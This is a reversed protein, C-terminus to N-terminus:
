KNAQHLKQTTEFLRGSLVRAIAFSVDPDSHMIQLFTEKKIRLVTTDTVARVTASIPNTTLLSMEGVIEHRGVGRILTEEAGVVIEGEGELVVYAFAGEDGEKLLVEGPQFTMRESSFALLKLRSSDMGEFLPINELIAAEADLASPEGGAAAEEAVPAEHSVQGAIRGDKMEIVQGFIGADPNEGTIWILTTEPLLDFINERIRDQSVRDLSSLADNVVLIDPRKIISRALTIRQRDAQPIKRGGVGVTAATAALIIPERLDMEKLIELTLANIAEEANPRSANISGQLLNRRLTIQGSFDDSDFFSVAKNLDEPLNERFLKRAELIKAQMAEDMDVLRHREIVLQMTLAMLQNKEEESIGDFGDREAKITLLKLGQLSDEDVFSYQEFLPQDGALDGFMDVMSEAVQLGKKQFEETLGCQDLIGRAYENEGLTNVAFTDGVPEGFIINAAVTSSTNYKEFDYPNMLDALEHDSRLKDSIRERAKLAGEAIEPHAAPDIGMTLARNYFSDQIELGHIVKLIWESLESRDKLGLAEYDVWDVDISFPSNGSAISEDRLRAGEGTVEGEEDPAHNIGYLVNECITGDFVYSDPGAYGIRAGIVTEHMEALSEGGAIIKGRTPVILRTLLQAMKERTGAEAVIAVRSAPSTEFTVEELEKIGDEDTFSVNEFKLPGSLRPIVDPRGKQLETSLLDSPEFQEVLVEYKINADQMRQYYKLLVKWPTSFRNFAALVAVLAGLSLDGNIILVGGFSYFLLPTLQNLFNTLAKMFFKKKYLQFRITFIGGLHSSFHALMHSAAANAHLDNIGTASEGIRGSLIRARRVREKGLKNVQRQLIPIVYAQVPVLSVAVLGLMWDQAFMFVLITAMTGGQFVPMAFSDGIFEGLPEVEATIMSSLEGPSVKQFHKVPFRLIREYLLYRLRRLMREATIGKYTNISMQFVANIMLMVLLMACLILLYTIQELDFGFYQRPFNKGDIADNVIIKPLQLAVYLFPFSAITLGLVAFQQAKSYQWIYKFLNKDV